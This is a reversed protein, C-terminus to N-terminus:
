FCLSLHEHPKATPFFATFMREPFFPMHQGLPVKLFVGTAVRSPEATVVGKEILTCFDM